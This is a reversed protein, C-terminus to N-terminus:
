AESKAAAGPQNFDFVAAGDKIVLRAKFTKGNKYRYIKQSSECHPCVPSTGWRRNELYERCADDDPFKKFFYFLNYTSCM